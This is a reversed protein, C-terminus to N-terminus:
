YELIDVIERTKKMIKVAKNDLILTDIDDRHRPLQRVIDDPLHEANKYIDYPLVEGRRVKDQWGPPLDWGRELKKKLGPPLRKGKSKKKKKGDTRGLYERIIEREKDAELLDKKSQEVKAKSTIEKKGKQKADATFSIGLCVVMIMVVLLLKKM